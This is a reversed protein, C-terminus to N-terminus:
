GRIVYIFDRTFKTLLVDSFNLSGQKVQIWKRHVQEIGRQVRNRQEYVAGVARM